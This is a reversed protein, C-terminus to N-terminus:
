LSPEDRDRKIVRKREREGIERQDKEAKMNKMKEIISPRDEPRLPKNRTNRETRVPEEKVAPKNKAAEKEAKAKEAADRERLVEDYIEARNTRLISRIKKLIAAEEDKAAKKENLTKLEAELSRLEARLDKIPVTGDPYRKRIFRNAKNFAELEEGHKKKYSDKQLQFFFSNYKKNFEKTERRTEYNSIINEVETKRKEKRKVKDCIDKYGASRITDFEAFEMITHVDNNQLYGVLPSIEKLDKASCKNKAGRGWEIREQQRETMYDTIAYIVNESRERDRKEKAGSVIDNELIILKRFEQVLSKRKENLKKITRNLSGAFTEIGKRELGLAAGGMHVTPVEQKGQRIFSRMDLRESRGNQELYYNTILEWDHRWNEAYQRNNWDVTNEKHSKYNGSSLKIKNGNEDLEYVMRSKPLWKGNEDLARMTLLIHVHPNGDGKDHIAFDCCMGKDVFEKQCFGLVLDRCDGIPIEKPLAAVIQRAYQADFRKEAAEVSNWLKGRNEFEPPAHAPLLVDEYVVEKKRSYDKYKMDKESYLKQGSNYAASAVVSKGKSGKVISISFHPCPM